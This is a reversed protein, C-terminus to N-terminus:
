FIGRSISQESDMPSEVNVAPKKAARKVDQEDRRIRGDRHIKSFAVKAWNPADSSVEANEFEGVGIAKCATNFRLTLLKNPGVVAFFNDGRGFWGQKKPLGRSIVQASGKRSLVILEGEYVTNTYVPRGKTVELLVRGRPTWILVSNGEIKKFKDSKSM